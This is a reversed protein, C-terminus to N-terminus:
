GADVDAHADADANTTNTDADADADTDADAEAGCWQNVFTLRNYTCTYGQKQQPM